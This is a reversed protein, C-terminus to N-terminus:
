QTGTRRKYAGWGLIMAVLLVVGGLVALGIWLASSVGTGDPPATTGATGDPPVISVIEDGSLKPNDVDCNKCTELIKGIGELTLDTMERCFETVSPYEEELENMSVDGAAWRTLDEDLDPFEEKLDEFCPDRDLVYDVAEPCNGLCFPAPEEVIISDKCREACEKLASESEGLVVYFNCDTSQETQCCMCSAGLPEANKKADLLIALPATTFTKQRDAQPIKPFISGLPVDQNIKVRAAVIALTKVDDDARCKELLDECLEAQCSGTCPSVLHLSEDRNDELHELYVQCTRVEM